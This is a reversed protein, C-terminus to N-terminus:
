FIEIRNFPYFRLVVKGVVNETPVPGIVRSDTSHNRNDGLVFVHDDPVTVTEFDDTDNMEDKIYEEGLAKGNRYLIGNEMKIQDGPKGIVRKVWNNDDNETKNTFISILPSELFADKITRLRDVRSDIIVIDGYDPESGLLYPTKFVLLRDGTKEPDSVESGELTPQMSSGTVTFPQIVFISIILAVVLAFILAKAWSLIESFLKM